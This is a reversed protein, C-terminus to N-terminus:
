FQPEPNGISGRSALRTKRMDSNGMARRSLAVLLGIWYNAFFGLIIWLANGVELLHQVARTRRGIM